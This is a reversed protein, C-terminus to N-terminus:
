YITFSSSSRSSACQCSTWSPLRLGGGWPYWCPVQPPSLDLLSLPLLTAVSMDFGPRGVERLLAAASCFLLLFALLCPVPGCVERAPLCFCATLSCLTCCVSWFYSGAGLSPAFAHTASGPVPGRVLDVFDVPGPEACAHSDGCVCALVCARCVPPAIM